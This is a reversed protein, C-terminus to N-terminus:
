DAPPNVPNFDLPEDCCRPLEYRLLEALEDAICTVERGCVPCVARWFGVWFIREDEDEQDM